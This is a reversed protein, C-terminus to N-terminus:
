FLAELTKSMTALNVASDNLEETMATLEEGVSAVENIANHHSHISARINGLNGAISEIPTVLQKTVNGSLEKINNTIDTNRKAITAFQLSVERSLNVGEEVTNKTYGMTASVEISEKKFKDLIEYVEKVTTATQAALKSVEDAVITFGKGSAGARSAEISANLSLLKSQSAISQVKDVFKFVSDINSCLYNVKQQTTKISDLVDVDKQASKQILSTGNNALTQTSLSNESVIKINDQISKIGKQIILLESYVEDINQSQKSVGMLMDNIEATIEETGGSSESSQLELAKAVKILDKTADSVQENVKLLTDEKNLVDNFIDNARKVFYKFFLYVVFSLLATFIINTLVNVLLSMGLGKSALSYFFMSVNMGLVMSAFAFKLISISFYCCAIGIPIFFLTMLGPKNGLYFITSSIITFSIISAHSLYRSNLKSFIKPILCGILFTITSVIISTISYKLLHGLIILILSIPLFMFGSKVIQADVKLKNEQLRNYNM